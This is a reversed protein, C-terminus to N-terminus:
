RHYMYFNHIDRRVYAHSNFDVAGTRAPASLCTFTHFLCSDYDCVSLFVNANEQVIWICGCLFQEPHVATKDVHKNPIHHCSAHCNDFCNFSDATRIFLSESHVYLMTLKGCRKLLSYFFAFGRILKLFDVEFFEPHVVNM